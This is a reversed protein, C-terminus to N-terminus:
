PSGILYPKILPWDADGTPAPVTRPSTSGSNSDAPGLATPGSGLPGASESGAQGPPSGTRGAGSRSAAPKGSASIAPLYTVTAPQSMGLGGEALGVIRAPAELEAVQLRLKEYQAQQGSAQQQLRDLIFQNEAMLVHLAVLALCMAAGAAIFLGVLVRRRNARARSQRPVLHLHREPVVEQGPAPRAPAPHRPSPAPQDGHVLPGAVPEMVAAGRRPGAPSM